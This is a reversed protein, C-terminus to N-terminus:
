VAPSPSPTSASDSPELHTNHIIQGSGETRDEQLYHIYLKIELCQLGGAQKEDNLRRRSEWTSSGLEFFGGSRKRITCNLLVSVSAARMEEQSSYRM